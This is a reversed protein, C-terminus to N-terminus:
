GFENEFSNWDMKVSLIVLEHNPNIIEQLIPRFLNNQEQDSLKGKM